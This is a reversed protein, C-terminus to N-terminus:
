TTVINYRKKDRMARMTTHYAVCVLRGSAVNPEKDFGKLAVKAVHHSDERIEQLIELDTKEIENEDKTKM